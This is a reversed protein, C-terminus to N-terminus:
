VFRRMWGEMRRYLQGLINVNKQKNWFTEKWKDWMM